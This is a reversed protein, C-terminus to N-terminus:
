VVSKRDPANPDGLSKGSIWEAPVEPQAVSVVTPRNNLWLLLVVLGLLLVAGIIIWIGASSSQKKSKSKAKTSTTM